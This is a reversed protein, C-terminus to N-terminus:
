SMIFLLLGAAPRVKSPLLCSMISGLAVYEILLATRAEANKLYSPVNLSPAPDGPNVVVCTPNSKLIENAPPLYYAFLCLKKFIKKNIQNICKKKPIKFVYYKLPNM